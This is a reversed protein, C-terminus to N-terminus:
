IETAGFAHMILQRKNEFDEQSLSNLSFPSPEIRKALGEEQADGQIKTVEGARYEKSIKAIM